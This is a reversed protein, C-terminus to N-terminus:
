LSGHAVRRSRSSTSTETTATAKPKPPPKADNKAKKATKAKASASRKAAAKARRSRRMQHVLVAGLTTLAAGAVLMGAAPWITELRGECGDCGLPPRGDVAALVVGGALLPAGVGVPIWGNLRPAPPPSPPPTVKSLSVSLNLRQNLQADVEQVRDVYGDASVEIRHPGPRLVREVPALGVFEGDVSVQAGSPETTLIIRPAEEPEEALPVLLGSAGVEIRECAEALGCLACRESFVSSVEPDDLRELRLELTYDRDSASLLAWLVYEIEAERLREVCAGDMCTGRRVGVSEGDVVRAGARALGEAISVYLDDVAARPPPDGDGRRGIIVVRPGLGKPASPGGEEAGPAVVRAMAEASIAPVQAQAPSGLGLAVLPALLTRAWRSRACTM